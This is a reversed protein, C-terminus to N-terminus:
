DDKWLVSVYEYLGSLFLPYCALYIWITVNLTLKVKFSMYQETKMYTASFLDDCLVPWVTLPGFYYFIFLEEM